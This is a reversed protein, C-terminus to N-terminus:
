VFSSNPGKHKDAKFEDVAAQILKEDAELASDGGRGVFQIVAPVAIAALVGLIAIVVVLEILTFGRSGSKRKMKLM